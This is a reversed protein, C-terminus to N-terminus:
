YSNPKLHLVEDEYKEAAIAMVRLRELEKSTLNADGKNMLEYISIMAKQYDKDTSILYGKKM